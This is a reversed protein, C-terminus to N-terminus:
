KLLSFLFVEANDDIAISENKLYTVTLLLIGLQLWYHQWKCIGAGGKCQDLHHHSGQSLVAGKRHDYRTESALVAGHWIWTLFCFSLLCGRPWKSEFLWNSLCFSLSIHLLLLEQPFPQQSKASWPSRMLWELTMPEQSFGCCSEILPSPWSPGERGTAWWGGSYASRETRPAVSCSPCSLFSDLHQPAELGTGHLISSFVSFSFESSCMLQRLIVSLFLIFSHLLERRPETSVFRVQMWSSALKIGPKAWQTLSRPNSHVTDCSRSPDSM